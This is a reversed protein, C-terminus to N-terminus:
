LEYGDEKMMKRALDPDGKSIYYYKDIINKNLETGQKVKYRGNRNKFDDMVKDLQPQIDKLVRGRLDNPLPSNERESKDIYYQMREEKLKSPLLMAKLNAIIQQRGEPTQALTPIRQLSLQFESALIRNGYDAQLTGGGLLDYALKMYEENDPNKLWESKLGLQELLNYTGSDSLEGKQELENMRDFIAERRLSDEYKDHTNNIFNDNVKFSDRVEKRLAQDYKLNEFKEKKLDAIADLRSKAYDKTEPFLLLKTLQEETQGSIPDKYSQDNISPIPQINEETQQGIQPMMKGGEQPAEPVYVTGVSIRWSQPYATVYKAM